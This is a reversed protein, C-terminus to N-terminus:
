TDLEYYYLIDSDTDYIAVSFNFSYRNLLETDDEPHEAESESSRDLFRYFGHEIRPWHAEEAFHYGNEIGDKEGGYMALNLNQSLPLPEWERVVCRAREAYKSCDLILYYHGDGNCGGYMGGEDIIWYDPPALGFIKDPRHGKIQEEEPEEMMDFLTGLVIQGCGHFLLCICVILILIMLLKKGTKM